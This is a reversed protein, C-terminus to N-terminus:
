AERRISVSGLGAGGENVELVLCTVLALLGFAMPFLLVIARPLQNIASAVPAAEISAPDVAATAVENSVPVGFASQFYVQRSATTQAGPAFYTTGGGFNGGYAGSFLDPGYASYGFAGSSGLPNSGSTTTSGDSTSTSGGSTSDNSGTSGSTSSSTSTATSTTTATPDSTPTSTSTTTTTPSLISTVTQCLGTLPDIIACTPSLSIQAFSAETGGSLLLLTMVLGFSAGLSVHM